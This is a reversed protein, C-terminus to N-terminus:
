KNNPPKLELLRGICSKKVHNRSWMLSQGAIPGKFVNEGNSITMWRSRIQNIEKWKGTILKFGCDINPQEIVSFFVQIKREYIYFKYQINKANCCSVRFRMKKSKNKGVLFEASALPQLM